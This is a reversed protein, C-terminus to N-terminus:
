RTAAARIPTRKAQEGFRYAGFLTATTRTSPMSAGTNRRWMSSTAFVRAPYLPEADVKGDAPLTWLKGFHNTNVNSFNLIQENLAQGTRANDNHYTLVDTAQGQLSPVTLFSLWATFGGLLRALGPCRNM